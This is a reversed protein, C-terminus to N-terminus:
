RFVISYVTPQSFNSWMIMEHFLFDRVGQLGGNGSHCIGVMSETKGLADIIAEFPQLTLRNNSWLPLCWAGQWTEVFWPEGGGGRCAWAGRVTPRCLDLSRWYRARTELYIGCM